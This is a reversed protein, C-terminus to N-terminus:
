LGLMAPLTALPILVAIIALVIEDRRDISPPRNRNWMNDVGSIPEKGLREKDINSIMTIRCGMM